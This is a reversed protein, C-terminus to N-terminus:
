SSLAAFARSVTVRLSRIGFDVVEAFAKTVLPFPFLMSLENVSRGPIAGSNNVEQGGSMWRPHPHRTVPSPTLTVRYGVM